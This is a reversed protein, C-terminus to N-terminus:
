DLENQICASKAQKVKKKIEDIHDNLSIRSVINIEDLNNVRCIVISNADREL